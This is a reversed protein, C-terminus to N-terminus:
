LWILPLLYCNRETSRQQLRPMAVHLLLRRPVRPLGFRGLLPRPGQTAGCTESRCSQTTGLDCRRWARDLSAGADRWMRSKRTASNCAHCQLVVRSPNVSGALWGSHCSISGGGANTALVEAEPVGACSRPTMAPRLPGAGGRTAENLIIRNSSSIAHLWGPDTISPFRPRGAPMSPM